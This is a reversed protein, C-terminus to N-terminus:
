ATALLPDVGSSRQKRSRYLGAARAAAILASRATDDAVWGDLAARNLAIARAQLPSAPAPWHRELYELAEFSDRAQFPYGGPLHLLVPRSFPRHSVKGGAFRRIRPVRLFAANWGFTANGNTM